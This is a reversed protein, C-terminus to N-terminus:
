LTARSSLDCFSRLTEARDKFPNLIEDDSVIPHGKARGDALGALEAIVGHNIGFANLTFTPHHRAIKRHKHSFDRHAILGYRTGGTHDCATFRSHSYTALAQTT